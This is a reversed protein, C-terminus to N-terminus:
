RQSQQLLWLKLYRYYTSEAVSLALVLGLRGDLFGLRLVYTRFFAWLGHFLASSLSGQKGKSLMLQAGATSYRNAKDLVSELNLYSEHLIASALNGVKHESVVREHVLDDSFVAFGRRFLRTVRDPSWGSHHIYQGCFSSQRPMCYVDFQPAVLVVRIEEILAPTLKEDADLSLVWDGHALALARNKQVGFGQWDVNVATQAGQEAAIALTTDTSGSDLVVKQDAFAVSCLCDAINHAENKTIVIVSLTPL